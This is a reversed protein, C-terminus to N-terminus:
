SPAEPAFITGVTASSGVTATTIHTHTTLGVPTTDALATVTGNVKLNGEITMESASLTIRMSGSDNRLEPESANFSPLSSESPKIGVIAIADKFSHHRGFHSQDRVGGFQKWLGISRQAYLIICEDGKKVPFTMHWGGGGPFVVPVNVLLKPTVSEYIYEKENETINFVKIAPQIVATQKVSDFSEIIGVNMTNVDKIRNTIFRDLIAKRSKTSVVDLAKQIIRTM